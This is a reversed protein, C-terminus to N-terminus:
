FLFFHKYRDSERAWTYENADYLYERDKFQELRREAAGPTEGVISTGADSFSTMLLLVEEHSPVNLNITRFQTINDLRYVYNDEMHSCLTPSVGKMCRFADSINVNDIIDCCVSLDTGCSDYTASFRLEYIYDICPRDVFPMGEFVQDGHQYTLGEAGPRHSSGLFFRASAGGLVIELETMRAFDPRQDKRTIGADTVIYFGYNRPVTENREILLDIVSQITTVYPRYPACKQIWDTLHKKSCHPDIRKKEKPIPDDVNHVPPEGKLFYKNTNSEVETVHYHRTLYDYYLVGRIHAHAAKGYTRYHGTNLALSEWGNGTGIGPIGVFAYPHGFQEQSATQDLDSNISRFHEEEAFVYTWQGFHYAGCYEMADVLVKTARMEWADASVVVILASHDQARLKKAMDESAERSHMTNFVEYVLLKMDLRSFVMLVLGMDKRRHYVVRNNIEIISYDHNNRGTGKIWFPIREATGPFITHTLLPVSWPSCGVGHHRDDCSRVRFEYGNGPALIMERLDPEGVRIFRATGNYISYWADGRDEDGTYKCWVIGIEYKKPPEEGMYRSETWVLDFKNENLDDYWHLSPSNKYKLSQLYGFAANYLREYDTPSADGPYNPDGKPRIPLCLRRYQVEYRMTNGLRHHGLEWSLLYTTTTSRSYEYNHFQPVEWLDMNPVSYVCTATHNFQEDETDTPYHDNTTTDIPYPADDCTCELLEDYVRFGKPEDYGCWCEVEHEGPGKQLAFHSFHTDGRDTHHQDRNTEDFCMDDRQCAFCGSACRRRAIDRHEPQYSWTDYLFKM